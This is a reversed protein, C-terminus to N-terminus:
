SRKMDKYSIVEFKPLPFIFKGGFKLFEKERQLFEKKFYWPLALFYDPKDARSKEESIIPIMTAATYKGWKYPNREAAASILKNNIGFHQLLTNGRTSAGYVHIKKGKKVENKIFALLENGINKIRKAFELYTEKELLGEEAEKKLMNKVRNKGTHSSIKSTAKKVFTRFSGGNINNTTVDFVEFGHKKLLKELSTLSYYELHEHLINDFANQSLMGPLYNQQIVFIGDDDMCQYVDKLFRNPNDLDYFMAIATIVKAKKDFKESYPENSFFDVVLHFNGEGFRELTNYALSIVNHSPDFGCRIVKNKYYKLLTGDNCGIDLVIDGKKLKIMKETIRVISKLENRMTQNVGSRYGYDANWLLTPNTTFRLQLLNCNQCLVLELPVKVSDQPQTYFGVVSQNGLHIISLLKKSGCARCKKIKSFNKGKM